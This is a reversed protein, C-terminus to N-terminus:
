RKLNVTEQLIEDMTTIIRANSQYGRQAAIMKTFEEALDVNSQELTGGVIQSTTGDGPILYAPSGSNASSTYMGGGDRSLGGPNNFEALIIQALTLITGNSFKGQIKGDKDVSLNELTGSAYGDQDRLSILSTGATQTIGTFGTQGANLTFSVPNAGNTPTFAIPGGTQTILEGTGNFTLTGSGISTTQGALVANWSWNNAATKRYTVTISHQNGLSDFVQFTSQVESGAPPLAPPIPAVYVPASSDLNGSLKVATTAKAPAKRELALKLNTIQADAPITGDERALKGQLVAGNGPLVMNGVADFSFNGLRTFYQRGESKVVFFGSGVIGLDTAIGSASLNGQTFAADISAVSSGLGVQQPNIGGNAGAPRLGTLRTQSLMETFTARSGKFGVTNINSINNGIVDLMVQHNRLGSVGSWLSTFLPM